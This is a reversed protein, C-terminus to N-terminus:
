LRHNSTFPRAGGDTRVNMKAAVNMRLALAEDRTVGNEDGCEGAYHGRVEATPPLDNGPQDDDHHHETTHIHSRVVREVDYASRTEPQGDRSAAVERDAHRSPRRLSASIPSGFGAREGDEPAEGPDRSVALGINASGRRESKTAASRAAAATIMHM